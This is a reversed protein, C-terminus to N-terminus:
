TRHPPSPAPEDEDADGSRLVLGEIADLAPKIWVNTFGARVSEATNAWASGQDAIADALAERALARARIISAM